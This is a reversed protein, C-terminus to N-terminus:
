GFAAGLLRNLKFNHPSLRLDLVVSLNKSILAGCFKKKFVLLGLSMMLRRFTANGSCVCLVAHSSLYQFSITSRHFMCVKEGSSLISLGVKETTTTDNSAFDYSILFRKAELPIAASIARQEITQPAVQIM